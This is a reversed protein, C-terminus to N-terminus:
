LRSKVNKVLLNVSGLMMDEPYYTLAGKIYTNFLERTILEESHGRGLKEKITNFADEAAKLGLRYFEQVQNVGCPVNGHGVGLVETPFQMLRNITNIYLDYDQFFVPSMLGEPTLYGAADSIFMVQESQLYAAISCPSHGPADVININLGDGCEINDGEGVVLDIKLNSVDMIDPRTPLFGKDAYADIIFKDARELAAKVKDRGLIKQAAQSAAVQAEPFLNRLMPIGCVHDFHSHMVLIYKIDPKRKLQSWEDAFISVGASTGCEILLADKKGVIYYNFNSNGLLLVNDTLKHM